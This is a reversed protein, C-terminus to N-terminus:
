QRWGRVVRLGFNNSMNEPTAANRLAVRCFDPQDDWSGGRIVRFFGSAPGRPNTPSGTDYVGYWDWCWQWVNGAMDTLGYNNPAFAEVPSTYPFAGIAHDPHYGMVLSLDYDHVGSGSYNAQTHSITHGWPFRQGGLGGRAAKEWEAETPLRYGNASWDPMPATTTGTRLVAGDVTYVPTLGEQEARSLQEDFSREDLPVRLAAFDALVQRRLADAPKTTRSASVPNTRTPKAKAM